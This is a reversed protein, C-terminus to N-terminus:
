GEATTHHLHIAHTHRNSAAHFDPNKRRADISDPATKAVAVSRVISRLM